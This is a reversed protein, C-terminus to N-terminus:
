VRQLDRLIATDAPPFEYGRLEFPRVWRFDSVGHPWLAGEKLECEYFYLSVAKEPYRYDIRKLFRGAKVRVGLEERIERELCAGLSEGGLRKGGPFEWLGGLHGGPRRRTILIRGERRIVACAVDIYYLTKM